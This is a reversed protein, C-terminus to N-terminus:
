DAVASSPSLLLTPKPVERGRILEEVIAKDLPRSLLYGQVYNCGYEQLGKLQEETEVGEAIADM